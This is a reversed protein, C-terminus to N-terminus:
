EKDLLTYRTKGADNKPLVDIARIEFSNFPITFNECVLAAIDDKRGADTIYIIMKKDTGVCACDIAFKGKILRETEDLGIRYGYLKLFRNKRGVIYYCGDEDRYALDGTAYVGNCMDGLLLDERKEAYGLTVNSGRYIIEGVMRPEIVENGDDDVLTITRGPLPIGISGTKDFAFEAPLYTMRSTTETSGYTAIFKRGTDKAYAACTHFLEDSMRGGGENIVKLDPLNMRFFRLRNLVEYSYPVGTFSQAKEERFFQWFGKDTLTYKTLLCTGGGYLHSSAVNLGQTFNLPLSVMGVSDENMEFVQSVAQANSEVNSMRHRVLKPSGTSGSTPLLLALEDAMPTPECCTQLLVYGYAEFVATGGFLERDGSPCWFFSPQYTAVFVNIADKSLTHSLMMPVCNYSMAAVYGACAGACNETIIMIICRENVHSYFEKSFACLEGYTLRYGDSDIIALSDPAKKDIHLFM